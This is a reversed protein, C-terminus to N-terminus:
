KIEIQLKFCVVVTKYEDLAQVEWVSPRMRPLFKPAMGALHLTTKVGASLPFTLGAAKACDNGPCPVPLPQPSLIPVVVMPTLKQATKKLVFTTDFSGKIGRQIVCPQKDCGTINVELPLVGNDGTELFIV